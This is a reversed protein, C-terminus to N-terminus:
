GGVSLFPKALRAHVTYIDSFRVYTSLKYTYGVHVIFLKFLVQSLSLLDLVGFLQRKQGYIATCNFM